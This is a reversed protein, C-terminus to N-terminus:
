GAVGRWGDMRVLALVRTPSAPVSGRAPVGERGASAAPLHILGMRAQVHGYGTETGMSLGYGSECTGMGLKMGLNM